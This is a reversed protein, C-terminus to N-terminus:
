NTKTRRKMRNLISIHLRQFLVFAGVTIWYFNDKLASLPQDASSYLLASPSITFGQVSRSICFLLFLETDSIRHLDFEKRTSISVRSDPLIAGPADPDDTHIDDCALVMYGFALWLLMYIWDQTVDNVSAHPPHSVM